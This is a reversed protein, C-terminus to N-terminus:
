EETTNIIKKDSFIGANSVWIDLGGFREEVRDAFAFLSSRNSVDIAEGYAKLGKERLYALAKTVKSKNRSCIAIEAGERAFLEATALGIGATGGTIVAVKNNLNIDM